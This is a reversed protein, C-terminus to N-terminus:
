EGPAHQLLAIFDEDRSDPSNSGGRDQQDEVGTQTSNQLDPQNPDSSKATGSPATQDPGKATKSPAPGKATDSPADILVPELPTPVLLEDRKTNKARKDVM